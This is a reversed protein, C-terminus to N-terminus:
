IKMMKCCKRVFNEIKRITITLQLYRSYNITDESMCAFTALSSCVNQKACLLLANGECTNKVSGKRLGAGCECEYSGLTNLCKGPCIGKRMCEDVDLINNLQSFIYLSLVQGLSM